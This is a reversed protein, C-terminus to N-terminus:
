SPPLRIRSILVNVQMCESSGEVINPHLATNVAIYAANQEVMDSSVHVRRVIGVIGSEKGLCDLLNRLPDDILPRNNGGLCGARVDNAKRRLGLCACSIRSRWLHM